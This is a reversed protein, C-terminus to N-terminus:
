SVETGSEDPVEQSCFDAIADMTTQIGNRWAEDFLLRLDSALDPHLDYEKILAELTDKLEDLDTDNLEITVTDEM